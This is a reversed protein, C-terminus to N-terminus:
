QQYHEWEIGRADRSLLITPPLLFGFLDWQIGNANTKKGTYIYITIKHIGMFFPAVTMYVLLEIHFIWLKNKHNKEYISVM